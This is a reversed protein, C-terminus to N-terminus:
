LGKAKPRCSYRSKTKSEFGGCGILFYLANADLLVVRDYSFYHGKQFDDTDQHSFLVIIM